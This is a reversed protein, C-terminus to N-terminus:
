AERTTSNVAARQGPLPERCVLERGKPAPLDVRSRPRLQRWTVATALLMTVGVATVLPVLPFSGSPGAQHASDPHPRDTSGWDAHGERGLTRMLARHAAQSEPDKAAPYAHHERALVRALTQEAHTQGTPRSVPELHRGQNPAQARAAAPVVSLAALAVAATFHRLAQV